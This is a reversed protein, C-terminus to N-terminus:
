RKVRFFWRGPVANTELIRGFQLQCAARAQALTPEIRFGRGLDEPDNSYKIVRTDKPDWDRYSAAPPAESDVQDLTPVHDENPEAIALAEDESIDLDSEMMAKVAPRLPATM